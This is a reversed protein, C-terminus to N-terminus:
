LKLTLSRKHEEKLSEFTVKQDRTKSFMLAIVLWKLSQHAGDEFSFKFRFVLNLDVATTTECM